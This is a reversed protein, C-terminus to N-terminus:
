SQYVFASLGQVKMESSVQLQQDLRLFNQCKQLDASPMISKHLEMMRLVVRGTVASQIGQTQTDIMITSVIFVIESYLVSEYSKGTVLRVPFEACVSDRLTFVNEHAGWSPM